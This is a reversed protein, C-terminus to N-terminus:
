SSKEGSPREIKKRETPLSTTLILAAEGNSYYKERVLLCNFGYNEYLKRAAQNSPRVELFMSMAGRAYSDALVGELLQAGLGGRQLDPDIALNLLHAETFVVQYIAYGRCVDSEDVLGMIHTLAASFSQELLPPTWPDEYARAEIAQIAPLDSLTLFRIKYARRQSM